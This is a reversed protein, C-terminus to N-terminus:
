MKEKVYNVIEIITDKAEDIHEKFSRSTDLVVLIYANKKRMPVSEYESNKRFKEMEYFWQTVLSKNVPYPKNDKRMNKVVFTAKTHVSATIRDMVIEGNQPIEISFGKSTSIGKLYFKSGSFLNWRKYFDGEFYIKDDEVNTDNLMMRIRKGAYDKPIEFELSSVVFEDKFKEKLVNLDKEMLIEPTSQNQSGAFYSLKQKLEDISYTNLDDDEGLFYMVFSQFSNTKNPIEFLKIPGLTIKNNMITHLRKQIKTGYIDSTAYNGKRNQRALQTSINDLGDTLFIIYYNSNPDNEMFLKKVKSIRDLGLDLAFYAATNSGQKLDNVQKKMATMQVTSELDYPPNNSNRDGYSLTVNDNFGIVDAKMKSTYIKESCSTFLLLVIVAVFPMLKKQTRNKLSKSSAGNSHNGTEMERASITAVQNKKKLKM